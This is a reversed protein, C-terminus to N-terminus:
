IKETGAVEVQCLISGDKQVVIEQSEHFIKTQPVDM